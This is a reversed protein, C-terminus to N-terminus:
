RRVRQPVRPQATYMAPRGAQEWAGVILGATASIAESLQQELLPKMPTFFAEFYADDYVDKTGIAAKDADNVRDVLAYSRILTDFAFDRPNTIGQAAKPTLTLRTDFKEILDREFRSHIGPNGTRFGDYNETAHFPQTADQLYHAAAAAFVVVNSIAYPEKKGIGEFGRRLNGAMEELRWPLTGWKKVNTVGFKAVAATYDRPLETFPPKGYQPIGFDVFHNPDDDWPINRWLDPDNSRLVVEERYHEFFPKLEPPLLEIARRMILQHAQAGWAFAPSPALTLLAGVAVVLVTKRM